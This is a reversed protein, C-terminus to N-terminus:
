FAKQDLLERMGPQVILGGGCAVVAGHSPHGNEVFEKEM